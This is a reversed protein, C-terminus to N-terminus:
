FWANFLKSQNKHDKLLKIRQQDKLIKRSFFFIYKKVIFFVSEIYGLVAAALFSSSHKHKNISM